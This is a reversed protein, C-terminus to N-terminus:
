REETWRLFLRGAAGGLDSDSLEKIDSGNVFEYGVGLGLEIQPTVNVLLSVGPEVLFLDSSESGGGTNNVTADGWGIFVDAAGHVVRTAMFTYNVDLGKYSLDSSGLKGVKPDGVEVSSALWYCGFGVYLARNLSIGLLGGVLGASDSGIGALKAEPQLWFGWYGDKVLSQVEPAPEAAYVSVTGLVLLMALLKKM